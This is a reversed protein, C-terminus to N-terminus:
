TGSSEGSGPLVNDVELTFTDTIGNVNVMYTGADLGVVDLSVNHEFPVLATTCMVDAPRKTTITVNFTHDVQDSTTEHISTCGDPLDGYATVLVQVPMSELLKIEIDNVRAQKIIM